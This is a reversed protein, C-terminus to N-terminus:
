YFITNKSVEGKSGQVTQRYSTNNKSVEGNVWGILVSTQLCMQVAADEPFLFMKGEDVGINHIAPIM